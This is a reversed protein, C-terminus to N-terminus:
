KEYESPTIYKISIKLKNIINKTVLNFSNDFQDIDHLNDVSYNIGQGKYGDAGAAFVSKIGLSSLFKLLLIFSNNKYGEPNKTEILSNYNIRYKINDNEITSVAIIPISTQKAQFFRRANGFLVYDTRIKEPIFNISIVVPKEKEIFNEIEKAYEMLSSGPAVILIKKNLLLKKLNNRTESDDIEKNKYESYKKDAYEKDFVTKKKRAFTALIRNIDKFTLDGKDIYYEAYNRHLNYRASLFYSPSYGWKTEGKLHYIYNQICDMMVDIDYSSQKYENLYNSILELPLNGPNRGMGMLSGDISIPRQLEKEVFRQSLSCGLSMNEHLHLGLQIDNSLSKDVIGVIRDLDHNKMSGFTDVICFQWPHVMNVNAIISLIQADTYGMINIPNISVKYGLKQVKEAFAIGEEIDYEHATVRIIEIGEGSYPSLKSVDYNSRMAMASYMCNRKSKPLFTNLEEIRNAVTINEDFIEVNRLFGVEVIDVGAETLLRVIDHATQKGWKWDNVYGGDRLTCDLLKM